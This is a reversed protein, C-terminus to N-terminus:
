PMKWILVTGDRSYSALYVSDESWSMALIGDAHGNLLFAPLSTSMDVLTIQGQLSSIAEWRGDPSQLSIIGRDKPWSFEVRFPQQKLIEGSLADWYTARGGAYTILQHGEWTLSNGGGNIMDFGHLSFVDEGNLNMMHLTGDRSELGTLAKGDPTWGFVPLPWYGPYTHTKQGTDADWIIIQRASGAALYKGDPSWALSTLGMDQSAGELNKVIVGTQGDLIAVDLGNVQAFLNETPSTEIGTGFASGPYQYQFGDLPQYSTADWAKVYGNADVVYIRKGDGSWVARVIGPTVNNCKTPQVTHLSKGTIADWVRVEQCGAGTLLKTGDPSWNPMGWEQTNVQYLTEGTDTHVVMIGGHKMGMALLKGDPSFDLGRWQPSMPLFWIEKQTEVELLYVGLSTDIALLKGDPSLTMYSAQGKGLRTVPSLSPLALLESTSLTPVPTVQTQQYDGSYVLFGYSADGFYKWSVNLVFINFGPQLGELRYDIDLQPPLSESWGDGPEWIRQDSDQSTLEQEPTVQMVSIVVSDPVFETKFKFKTNVSVLIPLELPEYVTPIGAMDTCSKDSTETNQWCFSGSLGSQTGASTELIVPPPTAMSSSVPTLPTCATAFLLLAVIVHFSRKQHNLM